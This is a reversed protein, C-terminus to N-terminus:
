EIVMCIASENFTLPQYFESLYLMFKQLSLAVYATTISFGWQSIRVDLGVIIDSIKGNRLMKSVPCLCLLNVHVYGM